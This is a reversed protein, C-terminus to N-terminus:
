YKESEITGFSEFVFLFLSRDGNPASIDKLSYKWLLLMWLLFYWIWIRLNQPGLCHLHLLFWLEMEISLQSIKISHKWLLLMRGWCGDKFIGNRHDLIIWICFYIKEASTELTVVNKGPLWRYNESGKLWQGSWYVKHVEQLGEQLGEEVDGLTMMYRRFHVWIFCIKAEQIGNDRTQTWSFVVVTICREDHARALNIDEFSGLNIEVEDWRALTCCPWLLLECIQYQELAFLLKKWGNKVFEELSFKLGSNQGRYFPTKIKLMKRKQGQPSWVPFLWKRVFCFTSSTSGLAKECVCKFITQDEDSVCLKNPWLGWDGFSHESLWLRM